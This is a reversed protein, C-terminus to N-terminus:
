LAGELGDDEEQKRKKGSAKSIGLRKELERIYRDEAEEQETRPIPVPKAPKELHKPKFPPKEKAKSTSAKESVEKSTSPTPKSALPPPQIDQRAKKVQPPQLEDEARRKISHNYYEAKKSKKNAREQKRLEKRNIRTNYRQLRYHNPADNEAAVPSISAELSGFFYPCVM